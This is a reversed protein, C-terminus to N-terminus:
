KNVVHKQAQLTGEEPTGERCTAGRFFSGQLGLFMHDIFLMFFMKDFDKNFHTAKLTSV